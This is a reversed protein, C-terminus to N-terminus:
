RIRIEKIIRESTGDEYLIEAELRGEREITYLGDPETEIGAGDLYWRVEAVGTANFVRLPIRTGSIFSGDTNRSAGSLYIYPYTGSRYVKTLFSASASYKQHESIMLRVTVRYATQAELGEITYSDTGCDARDSWVTKGDTWEIEFGMNEALREDIDWNVIAADQFVTTSSISVPRVVSFSVSGDGNRRIDILALGSTGGDWTRFAPDTDSGFSDRRGHPFFIDSAEAAEPDASVIEACQRDPRCNIQGYEWREAATLERGYYDSMGAPNESKDIHYILLGGNGLPEDWGEPARCEFLFYEGETDTEYKLYRRSRNVPELTYDGTKLEECTGAGLTELDPAGLNPPCQGDLNKCGFDMLSTNWLGKSMGGSSDGDTDYLDHLGFHHALEHCFIGIGAPQPNLGDDSALECSVAFSDVSKGNMSLSLGYDGLSGYQPWISEADAGDAESPGAFLVFVNDVNGDNDNDYLSFDVQGSSLRCAERVADGLQADRRDSYNSGYYAYGKSLTVAPAIDFVFEREDWSQDNFYEQASLVTQELEAETCSFQRDQFQAPIVIMRFVALFIALLNTMTKFFCLAPM